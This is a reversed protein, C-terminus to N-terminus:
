PPIHDVLRCCRTLVPCVLDLPLDEEAKPIPERPLFVMRVEEQEAYDIPKQVIIPSM